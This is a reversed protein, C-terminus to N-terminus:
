KPTRLVMADDSPWGIASFEILHGNAGRLLGSTVPGSVQGHNVQTAARPLACALADEGLEILHVGLLVCGTAILRLESRGSQASMLTTSPLSSLFSRPSSFPPRGSTRLKPICSIAHTGASGGTSKM